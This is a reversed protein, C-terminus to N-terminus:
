ATDASGRVSVTDGDRQWTVLAVESPMRPHVLPENGAPRHQVENVITRLATWIEVARDPTLTTATRNVVLHVATGNVTAPHCINQDGSQLAALVQPPVYSAIATRAFRDLPDDPQAGFDDGNISM